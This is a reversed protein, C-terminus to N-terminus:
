TRLVQSSYVSRRRRVWVECVLSGVMRSPDVLPRSASALRSLMLCMQLWHLHRDTGDEGGVGVQWVLKVSIGM